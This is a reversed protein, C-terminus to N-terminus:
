FIIGYAKKKCRGKVTDKILIPGFIDIACNSFPPSPVLREIPLPGMEQAEKKKDRKKCTVCRRKIKRVMQTLKPIWFRSRVRAITGDVTHDEKHISLFICIRFDVIM